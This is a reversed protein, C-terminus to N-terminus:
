RKRSQGKGQLVASWQSRHGREQDRVRRRQHHPDHRRAYRIEPLPLCRGQHTGQGRCQDRRYRQACDQVEAELPADLPVLTFLTEGAQVVSGASSKGVDLVVSDIPAVLSTKERRLKAKGLDQTVGDREQRVRALEELAQEHWDHIFSNRRASISEAQHDLDGISGALQENERKAGLLQSQADLLALRTGLQKDNLTQRMQLTEELVAIRASTMELDARASASRTEISALDEDFSRLRDRLNSQRQAYLSAELREAASPQASPMYAVDDLEAQLRAQRADLASLREELQTTDAEAFTPDLDALVEGKRVVDGNQAKIEHVVSLELPQVVVLPITPVLSGRVPVVEDVHAFWAWVLAGVFFAGLAYLMATAALPPSEDELARATSQFDRAVM